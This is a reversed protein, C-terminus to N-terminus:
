GRSVDCTCGFRYILREIHSTCIQDDNPTGFLPRKEISDIKAPLYRTEEQSSSYTKILQAFKVRMGFMFPVNLKYAPLGDTTLQFTGSTAVNLKKLFAWCSTSDQLGVLYPLTRSDWTHASRRGSCIRPHGFVHISM